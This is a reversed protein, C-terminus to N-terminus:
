VLSPPIKRYLRRRHGGRRPDPQGDEWKSEVVGQQEMEFILPYFTGTWVGAERSIDLGSRWMTNSLSAHIRQRAPPRKWWRIIRQWM